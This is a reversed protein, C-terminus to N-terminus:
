ELNGREKNFYDSIILPFLRVPDVTIYLMSWSLGVGFGCIIGKALRDQQLKDRNTCLSLLVSSGNTNGYEHLSRFDKEEPAGCCDSITDLMLKQAQHYSIFDLNDFTLNNRALFRKIDEAVCNVGFEFVAEGDMHFRGDLSRLISDYREGNSKTLFPINPADNERSLAVATGASGFLLNDTTITNLDDEYVADSYLLLGKAGNDCQSLVSSLVQIGVANASCGLNIDFCVCDESLGLLKQLFFATSPLKFLPNQTAFILAKIESKDWKLEELLYMGAIYALDTSKQEKVSVRRSEIGTLIIQKKCRRAGFVPAYDINHIVKSPVVCQIGEIRIGKIIGQM